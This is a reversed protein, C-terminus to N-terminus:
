RSPPGWTPDVPSYSPSGLPVPGGPQAWMGGLGQPGPYSPPPFEGPRPRRLRPLTLRQGRPDDVALPRVSGILELLEKARASATADIVGRVEADRLYALETLARQLRVTAVFNTWGRTLAVLLAWLRSRQRSAVVPDAAPLWGMRVFDGLRNRILRGEAVVQRVGFMAASFVLPLAVLFYLLQQSMGQSLGAQSNFVMHLLAAILYGTVPALVRVVKSHTRLAVVLGVGTMMTFLPHGFATAVGRLFVLSQVAAQADGVEITQSSYVIARAYYIINETFAFGAASLGALAIGNLKTTLRYRVLIAIWFLISAKAAEEVFPAIYIAARAGTSPDGVGTISLQEAAWTNVHLSIFTAMTGGWGLALYWLLPRQPRFRDALLFLAVWFALTPWAYGAAERIASANIGPVFGDKTEIDATITLYQSVLAAAFILTMGITVWTWPSTLIRRPLPGSRPQGGPIGNLRRRHAAISASSM